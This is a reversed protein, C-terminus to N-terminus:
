DNCPREPAAGGPVGITGIEAVWGALIGGEYFSPGPGLPGNDVIAITKGPLSSRTSMDIKIVGAPITVRVTYKTDWPERMGISNAPKLQNLASVLAPWRALDVPQGKKECPDESITVSRIRSPLLGHLGQTTTPNAWDAGCSLSVLAILSVVGLEPRGLPQANLPSGLSRLSRGSRRRPRRTRQLAMNPPVPPALARLSLNM